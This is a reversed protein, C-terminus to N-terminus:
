ETHDKDSTDLISLQLIDTTDMCCAAAYGRLEGKYSNVARTTQRDPQERFLWMDQGYEKLQEDIEKPFDYGKDVVMGIQKPELRLPRKADYCRM